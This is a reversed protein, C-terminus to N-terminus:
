PRSRCVSERLRGGCPPRPYFNHHEIGDLIRVRDDGALPVHISIVPHDPGDLAPIDDGALPVHISIDVAPCVVIM